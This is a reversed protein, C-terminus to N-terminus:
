RADAVRQMWEEAERTEGRAALLFALNNMARANGLDAAKRWWEEADDLDTGWEYLLVGLNFMADPDGLGAAMLYWEEASEVDGQRENLAGLNSMAASSGADAAMKLWVGAEAYSEREFALVGMECMADADGRNAAGLLQAEDDADSAQAAIDGREHEGALAAMVQPDTFPSPIFAGAAASEKAFELALATDPGAGLSNLEDEIERMRELEALLPAGQAKLRAHEVQLSRIRAQRKPVKVEGHMSDLPDPDPRRERCSDFLGLGRSGLFGM